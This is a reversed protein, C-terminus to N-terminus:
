SICSSILSISCSAMDATSQETWGHVRRIFKDVEADPDLAGIAKSRKQRQITFIHWEVSEEAFYYSVRVNKKQPHRITRETAQDVLGPNWCPSLHIVQGAGTFARGVGGSRITVLLIKMSNDTDNNFSDETQKRQKKKVTGDFRGIQDKFGSEELAVQLADLCRLFESYVVIKGERKGKRVKKFHSIIQAVVANLRSSHWSGQSMSNMLRQRRRSVKDAAKQKWTPIHLEVLTLPDARAQVDTVEAEQEGLEGYEADILKVHVAGIRAETMLRLLQTPDLDKEKLRMQPEKEAPTLKHWIDEHRGEHLDIIVDQNNFKHHRTLRM